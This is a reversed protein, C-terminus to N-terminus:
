WRHEFGEVRQARGDHLLELGPEGAMVRGIWSLRLAGAKELEEQVLERKESAVCVCLEYDEGAGAALRWPETALQAAIQELGEQLPLADLDIQVKVQSAQALHLADTALGDSLDIMADAGALALVRGECLRPLPRRLRELIREAAPPATARGELIALAAGAGGLTGTVGILNGERARDRGVIEGEHEAWGVVTVGLTLVPASVVDGGLISTGTSQALAAAGDLLELAAAEGFDPPLGLALYAEGTMAGMAAIDSLAGALARWGVQAPTMWDESLRFHVGEVMSDVSTVCVPLSRM